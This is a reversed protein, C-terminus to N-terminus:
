PSLRCWPNGTTDILAENVLPAAAGFISTSISCTIASGASRVQTPFM